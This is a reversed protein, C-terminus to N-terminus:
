SQKFIDRACQKTQEPGQASRCVFLEGGCLFLCSWRKVAQM